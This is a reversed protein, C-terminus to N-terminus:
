LGNELAIRLKAIDIRKGRAIPIIDGNTMVIKDPGFIRIYRYNVLYTKHPNIFGSDGLQAKINELSAYFTDESDITKIIVKRDRSKFYIVSDLKVWYSDHGYRYHFVDIRSGYIRQYKQITRTLSVKNLPKSLFDFPRFEFLQRDYGNKGSVYVIQVSNNNMENRIIHGVDIGSLPKMEIDLFILHYGDGDKLHDVLSEGCFYVDCEVTIGFSNCAEVAYEEIMTCVLEDDDCIAIRVM